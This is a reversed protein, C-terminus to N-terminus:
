LRSMHVILYLGHAKCIFFWKAAWRCASTSWCFYGPARGQAGYVRRFDAVGGGGGTETGSAPAAPTYLTPRPGFILGLIRVGWHKSEGRPRFYAPWRSLSALPTAHPPQCDPTFQTGALRRCRPEPMGGGADPPQCQCDRTGRSASQRAVAGQLRLRAQGARCMECNVACGSAALVFLDHLLLYCSADEGSWTWSLFFMGM